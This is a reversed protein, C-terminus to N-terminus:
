SPFVPPENPIREPTSGRAFKRRLLNMAWLLVMSAAGGAASEPDLSAAFSKGEQSVADSLGELEAKYYRLEESLLAIAKETGIDDEYLAAELKSVRSDHMEQRTKSESLFNELAGNSACATLACLGIVQVLHRAM